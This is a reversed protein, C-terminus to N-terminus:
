PSSLVDHLTQRLEDLYATAGTLGDDELQNAALALNTSLRDLPLGAERLSIVLAAFAASLGTVQDEVSFVSDQVDLLADQTVTM